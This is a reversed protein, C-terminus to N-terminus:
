VNVEGGLVTVASTINNIVTELDKYYTVEVKPKVEDLSDIYTINKYTTSKNLKELAEIQEKTCPLDIPTDLLYNVIVPTGSNYLNSLFTKFQEVSSCEDYKMTIGLKHNNDACVYGIYDNERYCMDGSLSKYYNSMFANTIYNLGSKLDSKNFQFYIKNYKDVIRSITWSESGNLIVEGIFHREYWKDGQQVFTDAYDGIKRMPQQVPITIEQSQHPEYKTAKTGKELQPKITYNYTKGNVIQINYSSYTKSSSIQSSSNYTEYGVNFAGGININAEVLQSKNTSHTYTGEYLSVTIPFSINGTSTATGKITIVGDKSTATVGNLSKVADPINLLNKNSIVETMTGDDGCSRIEQPYNPNPLTVDPGKLFNGTGANTYFKNEVLDYLGIVNDSRRYCPIFNRM